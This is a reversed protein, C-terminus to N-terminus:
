YQSPKIYWLLPWPPRSEQYKVLAAAGKRFQIEQDCLSSVWVSCWPDHGVLFVHEAKTALAEALVVELDYDMLSEREEVAGLQMEEALIQATELARYKPSTLVAKSMDEYDPLADKLEQELFPAFRKMIVAGEETLHREFDIHGYDAKGHRVFVLYM